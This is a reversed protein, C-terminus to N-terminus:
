DIEKLQTDIAEILQLMNNFSLKADLASRSIREKADGYVWEYVKINRIERSRISKEYLELVHVREKLLTLEPIEGILKLAAEYYITFSLNPWRYTLMRMFPSRSKLIAKVFDNVVLKGSFYEFLKSTYPKCKESLGKLSFMDGVRFYEKTIVDRIIQKEIEMLVSQKQHAEDVSTYDDWVISKLQTTARMFTVKVYLPYKPQSPIENGNGDLEVISSEDGKLSENVFHKVTIKSIEKSKTM